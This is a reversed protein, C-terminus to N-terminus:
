KKRSRLGIFLAIGAIVVLAAGAILAFTGGGSQNAAAAEPTATVAPTATDIPAPKSGINVNVSTGSLLSL